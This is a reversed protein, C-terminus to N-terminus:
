GDTGLEGFIDEKCTKRGFNQIYKEGGVHEVWKM